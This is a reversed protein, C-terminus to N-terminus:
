SEILGLHAGLVVLDNRRGQDGLNGLKTMTTGVLDQTLQSATVQNGLNLM